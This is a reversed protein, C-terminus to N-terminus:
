AVATEPMIERNETLGIGKPKPTWCECHINTTEQSDPIEEAARILAEKQTDAEVEAVYLVKVRHKM